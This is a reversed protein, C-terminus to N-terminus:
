DVTPIEVVPVSDLLEVVYGRSLYYDLVEPQLRIVVKRKHGLYHLVALYFREEKMVLNISLIRSVM